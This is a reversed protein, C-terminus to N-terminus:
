ILNLEAEEIELQEITFRDLEQELELQFQIYNNLQITQYYYYSSLSIALVLMLLAPTLMSAMFKSEAQPLPPPTLKTVTLNIKKQLLKQLQNTPKM